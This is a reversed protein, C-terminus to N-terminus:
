HILAIIACCASSLVLMNNFASPYVLYNLLTRLKINGFPYDSDTFRLLVSLVIPMLFLVFFCVVICLFSFFSCCSGWQFGPTSSLHEPLNLLRHVSQVSRNQFLFCVFSFFFFFFCSFFFCLVFCVLFCIFVFCVGIFM